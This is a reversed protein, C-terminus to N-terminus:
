EYLYRKISRKPTKEFETDRIEYDALEMYKPVRHNLDKLYKGLIEPLHDKTVGAKEMAEQDPYILAVLKHNRAIIVSEMVMFRNNLISELEEPYINQGTPGLIMSKSRGRIHINGKGDIIGLDGTHLWGEKDIVARTADENKYYGLMVHNGRVQIDGPINQPDDSDIRVELEDVIRGAAGAVTTDWSAYSILPGCETMGYGVTFRLGIRRFFHEVQPNLAAGGIVLEAFNGGFFDVLKDRIKNFVIRNLLPIRTILHIVPKHLEPLIKSKYVKEVMIPVTLILAPRIEKMAQILIAPSPIKNLFTIGCGLTFPFLFEFMCGFMHAVPLISLITDGSKLPMHHRAYRINGTVCKQQLVVGKSFGTTGSTYNIILIDDPFSKEFRIADADAQLIEDTFITEPPTERSFLPVAGAVSFIWRVKPFTAPDLNKSLGEDVFFLVADSHAVINQVDTPKFDPLIPVIVAGYTIASLFLLGWDASNRGWLAIKDGKNIGASNYFRHLLMIRTGVDGYTYSRGGYDALAPLDRNERISSEFFLIANEQEM